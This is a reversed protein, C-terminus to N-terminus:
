ATMAERDPTPISRRDASEDNAMAEAGHIHAMTIESAGDHAALAEAWFVLQDVYGLHGIGITNALDTLYKEVSRHLKLKGSRFMQRIEEVTFLKQGRGNPGTESLEKALDARFSVRRSFQSFQADQDASTRSKLDITGVLLVSVNGKDHLSRLVNMARDSLQHAEDVILVPRTKVSPPRYFLELLDSLKIARRRGGGRGSKLAKHIEGILGGMTRCEDDIVVSVVGRIEAKIAELALTKGAGGPAYAIGIATRVQLREVLTKLRMAVKTWVFRDPRAAERARAEDHMWANIAVLVEAASVRDLQGTLAQSVRSAPMGIAKAIANQSIGDPKVKEAILFETIDQLLKSFDRDSLNTVNLTWARSVRGDQGLKDLVEGQLGPSRVDESPDRPRTM